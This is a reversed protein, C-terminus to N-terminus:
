ELLGTRVPSGRLGGFARGLKHCALFEAKKRWVYIPRGKAEGNLIWAFIHTKRSKIPIKASGLSAFRPLPNRISSSFIHWERGAVNTRDLPSSGGRGKPWHSRLGDRRGTGGRGCESSYVGTAPCTTSNSEGAWEREATNGESTSDGVPIDIPTWPERILFPLIDNGHSSGFSTKGFSEAEFNRKADANCLRGRWLVCYLRQVNRFAAYVKRRVQGKALTRGHMEGELHRFFDCM